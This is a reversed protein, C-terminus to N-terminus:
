EIANWGSLGYYHSNRFWPSKTTMAIIRRMETNSLWRVHGDAYSCTTGEWHIRDPVDGGDQYVFIGDNQGLIGQDKNGRTEHILFLVKGSRGAVASALKITKCFDPIGKDALDQNVAYTVGLGAPLGDPNYGSAPRSSQVNRGIYGYTAGCYSPIDKDSPCNFISVSRAYGGKYLSGQRVDIAVPPTGYALWQTGTWEVTVPRADAYQHMHRRSCIPLFGNHDDTYSHFAATLQKLNNCCTAQRGKEKATAFVPFLVAALIAIIAIVVLLEILTFGRLRIMQVGLVFIHVQMPLHVNRM